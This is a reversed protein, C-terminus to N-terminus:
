PVAKDSTTNASTSEVVRVGTTATSKLPGATRTTGAWTWTVAWTITASVTFEGLGHGPSTQTYTHGCRTPSGKAPNARSTWATGPGQCTVTAGDGTSWVATIPRATATVTVGGASATASRPGWVGSGIWLWSPVHVLQVANVAPSMRIVPSPLVLKKVALDAVTAPGPATRFQRLLQLGQFFGQVPDGCTGLSWDGGSAGAPRATSAYYCGDAASYWGKGPISCPVADGDANHCRSSGASAARGPTGTTGAIALCAPNRSDQHCNVHGFGDATAGGAPVLASICGLVLALALLRPKLM